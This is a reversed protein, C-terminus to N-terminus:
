GITLRGLSECPRVYHRDWLRVSAGLAALGACRQNDMRLALRDSANFLQLAVKKGRTPRRGRNGSTLFPM